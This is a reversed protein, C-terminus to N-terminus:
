RSYFNRNFFLKHLLFFLNGQKLFSIMKKTKVSYYHYKQLIEAIEASMSHHRNDKKGAAYSLLAINLKEKEKAPIDLHKLIENVGATHEGAADDSSTRNLNTFPKDVTSNSRRIFLYLM